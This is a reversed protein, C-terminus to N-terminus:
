HTLERAQPAAGPGLAVAVAGSADESRSARITREAAELSWRQLRPHRRQRARRPHRLGDERAGQRILLNEVIYHFSRHHRSRGRVRGQSSPLGHWYLAHGPGPGGCSLAGGAVHPPKGQHTEPPSPQPSGHVSFLPPRSWCFIAAQADRSPALCFELSSLSSRQCQWFPRGAM